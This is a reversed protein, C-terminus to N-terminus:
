YKLIFRSRVEVQETFFSNLLFRPGIILLKWRSCWGPNERHRGSIHKVIFSGSNFEDCFFRSRENIDLMARVQRASWVIIRTFIFEYTNL